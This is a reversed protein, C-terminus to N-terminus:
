CSLVGEEWSPRTWTNRRSDLREFVVFLGQLDLCFWAYKSGASFGVRPAIISIAAGRVTESIPM